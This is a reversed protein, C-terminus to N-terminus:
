GMSASFAVLGERDLTQPNPLHAEEFPEFSAGEFALRWEGSTYHPGDLDLPYWSAEDREPMHQELLQEAGAVSLEWEAAPFDV